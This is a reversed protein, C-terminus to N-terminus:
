DLGHPDDTEAPARARAAPAAAGTGAAPAAALGARGGALQLRMVVADERRGHPAPYYARRLGVEEFGRAAYLRRARENSPRVELWLSAMGRTSAEAQLADLLARAHGRRQHPPAVTLNLLHMEDVVPMAVAYGVLEGADDRWLATWHGAALSDLFHNRRWPFAYACAEIALVADLDSEAIPEAQRVTGSRPGTAAM